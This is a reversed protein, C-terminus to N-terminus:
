SSIKELYFRFKYVKPTECGQTRLLSYFTRDTNCGTLYFRESAKSTM